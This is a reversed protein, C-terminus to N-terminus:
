HTDYCIGQESLRLKFELENANNSKLQKNKKAYQTIVMFISNPINGWAQSKTPLLYLRMFKISHGRTDRWTILDGSTAVLLFLLIVLSIRWPLSPQGDKNTKIVLIVHGFKFPKTFPLHMTM